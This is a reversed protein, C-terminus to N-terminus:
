EIKLAMRTVYGIDTNEMEIDLGCNDCRWDKTKCFDLIDELAERYINREKQIESLNHQLNGIERLLENEDM